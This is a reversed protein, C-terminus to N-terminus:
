TAPRSNRIRADPKTGSPLTQWRREGAAFVMNCVLYLSCVALARFYAASCFQLLQPLSGERARGFPSSSLAARPHRPALPVRAAYLPHSRAAVLAQAVPHPRRACRMTVQSQVLQENGATMM